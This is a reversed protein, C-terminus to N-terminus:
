PRAPAAAAKGKADGGPAPEVGAGERAANLLRVTGVDLRPGDLMQDLATRGDEDLQPRVKSLQERAQEQQHTVRAAALERIRAAEAEGKAIHADIQASRQQSQLVSQASANANKKLTSIQTNKVEIEKNKALHSMAFYGLACGIAIAAALAMVMKKTFEIPGDSTLLTKIAGFAAKTNSPEKPDAPVPTQQTDDDSM